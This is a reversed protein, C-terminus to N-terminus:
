LSHKHTKPEIKKFNPDLADRVTDRGMKMAPEIGAKQINDNLSDLIQSRAIRNAEGLYQLAVALDAQAQQLQKLTQQQQYFQFGMVAVFLSAAIGSVKPWSNSVVWKAPANDIPAARLPATEAIGYLTEKFNKPADVLPYAIDAKDTVDSSSAFLTNLYEEENQKM